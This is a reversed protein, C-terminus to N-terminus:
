DHKTITSAELKIAHNICDLLSDITEDIKNIKAYNRTNTLFSRYM